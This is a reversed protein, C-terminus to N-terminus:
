RGGPLDLQGNFYYDVRSSNIFYTGVEFYYDKQNLRGNIEHCPEREKSNSSGDPGMLEKLGVKAFDETKGINKKPRWFNFM